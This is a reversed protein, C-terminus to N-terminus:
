SKPFSPFRLSDPQNDRLAEVLGQITIELASLLGHSEGNIPLKIELITAMARRHPTEFPTNFAADGITELALKDVIPRFPEIIDDALNFANTSSRHHLGIQPLFGRACLERVIAARVIAYGYNLLANPLDERHRLFDRGAFFAAWYMRAARAEVNSSDGSRVMPALRELRDAAESHSCYRLCAAQMSIKSRVIRTWIKKRLVVSAALQLDIVVGQRYHMAWPMSVWVPIHRQDVGMVLTANESLRGLLSTSLDAELTDVVLCALYELPARFVEGDAFQVKLNRSELSLRAPRSLHLSRWAM